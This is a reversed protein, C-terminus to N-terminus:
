QSSVQKPSKKKEKEMSHTSSHTLSLSKESYEHNEDKEDQEDSVDIMQNLENKATDFFTNLQRWYRGLSRAVVPLREPGLVFLAILVVLAIEGFSFM